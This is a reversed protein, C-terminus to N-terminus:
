GQVRITESKKKPTLKRRIHHSPTLPFHLVASDCARIDCCPSMDERKSGDCETQAAIGDPFQDSKITKLSM